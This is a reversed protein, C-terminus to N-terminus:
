VIGDWLRREDGRPDDVVGIEPEDFVMVAREDPAYAPWGPDGTRAFSAWAAHMRDALPQPPNLGTLSEEAPVAGLTDFAFGIELAHCAGLDLVETQWSFEYVHAPRGYAARAEAVRLSPIRFFMDTIAACLVDGPSSEPRNRLYTDVAGAPAGRSALFARLGDATTAAAIGTPVFFFRFEETTTGTMLDVDRGNGAAIGDVPRESLLDGDIAPIFAMQGPVISAGFRAPDPKAALDDSVKRQAAMLDVIGIDALAAATPAVGLHGALEASVKAADEATAGIQGAGSQAIARRFLGESAKASVLSTVSMGGASEGFITVNGPDGGFAAINEQVWALAALQDRLGRNSPADPLVGFGLVGLRYNLSVLVVGDRAFAGGDYWPVAASGSRFAGGHIWVMVPMGSGGPDPTWVNVTLIDDGDIVPDPVYRSIAAPPFAPSPATAGYAIAERTGDWRAAPAPLEFRAPGVPPAAYPIGLFATVGNVQRGRVKGQRVAVVPDM